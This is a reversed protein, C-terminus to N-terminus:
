DDVSQSPHPHVKLLFYFWNQENHRQKSELDYSVLLLTVISMFKFIQPPCYDVCDCLSHFLLDITRASILSRTKMMMLMM